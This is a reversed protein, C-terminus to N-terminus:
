EFNYNQNEDFYNSFDNDHDILMISNTNNNNSLYQYVKGVYTPLAINEHNRNNMFTFSMSLRNIGHTGLMTQLLNLSNTIKKQVFTEIDIDQKYNTDIFLVYSTKNTNNEIIKYLNDCQVNDMPYYIFINQDTAIWNNQSFTYIKYNNNHFKLNRTQNKFIITAEVNFFNNDLDGTKFQIYNYSDEVFLIGSSKLANQKGEEDLNIFAGIGYNNFIYIALTKHIRSDITDDFIKKFIAPNKLMRLYKEIKNLSINM